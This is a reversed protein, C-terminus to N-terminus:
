FSIQGQVGYDLNQCKWEAWMMGKVRCSPRHQWVLAINKASPGWGRM